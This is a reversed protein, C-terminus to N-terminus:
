SAMNIMNNMELDKHPFRHIDTNIQKHNISIMPLNHLFHLPNTIMLGKTTIHIIMMGVKTTINIM